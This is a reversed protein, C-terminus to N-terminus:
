NNRRGCSNALSHETPTQSESHFYSECGLSAFKDRCLSFKCAVPEDKFWVPRVVTSSASAVNDEQSPSANCL